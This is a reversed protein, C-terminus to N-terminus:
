QIYFEYIDIMKIKVGEESQEILENFSGPNFVVLTRPIISFVSSRTPKLIGRIVGLISMALKTDARQTSNDVVQIEVTGSYHFEDKTGEPVSIVGGVWIYISAPTKPISKYIPYTVDASAVTGSLTLTANTITTAGTFGTGAVNATFILTAGLSTLVTGAVLYAAANTTVFDSATVTLSTHWTATKTVGNNLITATGSTGTLTIVDVEKYIFGTLTTYLGKILDYSIDVHKVSV